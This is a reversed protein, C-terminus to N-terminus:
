TRLARMLMFSMRAFIRSRNPRFVGSKVGMEMQDNRNHERSQTITFVVINIEIFRYVQKWLTRTYMYKYKYM